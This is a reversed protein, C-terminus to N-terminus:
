EAKRRLPIRIDSLKREPEDLDVFVRWEGGNTKVPLLAARAVIETAGVEWGPREREVQEVGAAWQKGVLAVFQDLPLKDSTTAM